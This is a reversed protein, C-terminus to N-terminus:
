VLLVVRSTSGLLLHSNEEWLHAPILSSLPGGAPRQPSSTYPGLLTSISPGRLRLASLRSLEAPQRSAAPPPSPFCSNAADPTM